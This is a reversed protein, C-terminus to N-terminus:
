TRMVSLLEESPVNLQLRWKRLYRGEDTLHPDLRVYFETLLLRLSDLNKSTGIKYLELLYGLRRIVAGSGTKKAYEVLRNIDMDRHRIWFGKAVETIGGCYQPESLGDIITKELNSVKVKEQKTVWYDNIGWFHKRYKTIFRFEIGHTKIHKRQKLVTVNVVLQPQTIMGHIEMATRHSLYYGKGNMIERAMLFPNGTYEREKGLEFPVLIYLGPKLRSVIGKSVLKGVFIRPYDKNTHLIDRVDKLRFIQKSQEYLTTILYAAKRGLTKSPFNYKSRM